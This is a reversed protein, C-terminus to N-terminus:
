LTGIRPFQLGDEAQLVPMGYYDRYSQNLM